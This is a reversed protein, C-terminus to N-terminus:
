VHRPQGRTAGHGPCGGIRQWDTACFIEPSCHQRVGAAKRGCFQKGFSNVISIDGDFNFPDFPVPKAEKSHLATKKKLNHLKTIYFVIWAIVKKKDNFM